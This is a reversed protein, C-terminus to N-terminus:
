SRQGVTQSQACSKRGSSPALTRRGRELSVSQKHSTSSPSCKLRVEKVAGVDWCRCVADGLRECGAFEGCGRRVDDVSRSVVTDRLPLGGVGHRSEFLATGPQLIGLHVALAM